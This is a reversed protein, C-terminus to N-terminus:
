WHLSGSISENMSRIFKRVPGIKGADAVVVEARIGMEALVPLMLKCGPSPFKSSNLTGDTNIALGCYMMITSAVKAGGENRLLELVQTVNHRLSECAIDKKDRKCLTLNHAFVGCDSGKRRGM